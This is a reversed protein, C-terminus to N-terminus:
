RRAHKHLKSLFYLRHGRFGYMYLLSIVHNFAHILSKLHHYMDRIPVKYLVQWQDMSFNALQQHMKTLYLKGISMGEREKGKTCDHYSIERSNTQAIHIHLPLQTTKHQLIIYHISSCFSKELAFM